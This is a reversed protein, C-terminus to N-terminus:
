AKFSSRRWRKARSETSSFIRIVSRRRCADWSSGLNVGLLLREVFARAALAPLRPYSAVFISPTL